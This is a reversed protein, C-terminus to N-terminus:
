REGSEKKTICVEEYLPLKRADEIPVAIIAWAKGPPPPEPDFGGLYALQGVVETSKEKKDKPDESLEQKWEPWGLVTQEAQRCSEMLYSRFIANAACRQDNTMGCSGDIEKLLDIADRAWVPDRRAERAAQELEDALKGLERAVKYSPSESGMLRIRVAIDKIIM